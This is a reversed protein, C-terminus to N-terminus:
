QISGHWKWTMDPPPPVYTGNRRALALDCCSQCKWIRVGPKVIHQGKSADGPRHCSNCNKLARGTEASVDAM